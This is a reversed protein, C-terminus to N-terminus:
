NSPFPYITVFLQILKNYIKNTLNTFDFDVLKMYDSVEDLTTATSNASTATTVNNKTKQFDGEVNYGAYSATSNADNTGSTTSNATTTTGLEMPSSSALARQMNLLDLHCDYITAKFLDAFVDVPYLLELRNFRVKIWDLVNMGYKTGIWSVNEDTAWERFLM